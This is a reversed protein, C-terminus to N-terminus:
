ASKSPKGSFLRIFWPIKKQFQQEVYQTERQCIEHAQDALWALQDNPLAEFDKLSLPPRRIAKALRLLSEKNQSNQM